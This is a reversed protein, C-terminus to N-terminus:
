ALQPHRPMSLATLHSYRAFAAATGFLEPEPHIILCGPIDAMQTAFRGKMRFRQFFNSGRLGAVIHRSIRGASVVVSAGHILAVGRAASGFSPCFPELALAAM